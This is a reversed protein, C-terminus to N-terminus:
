GDPPNHAAHGAFESHVDFVNPSILSTAFQGEFLVFTGLVPVEPGPFHSLDASPVDPPYTLLAHLHAIPCL